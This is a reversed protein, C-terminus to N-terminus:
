ATLSSKAMNALESFAAKDAVALEALIKRDVEVDSKNLGDILVEDIADGGIREMAYRAMDATKEDALMSGLVLASEESGVIFLQRCIYDKGALTADSKLAELLHKEVTKADEPNSSADRVMDALDTLIEKPQGYEYSAIKVLAKELKQKDVGGQALAVFSLILLTLFVISRTRSKM